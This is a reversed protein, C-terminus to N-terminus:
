VPAHFGYVEKRAADREQAIAAKLVSIEATLAANSARLEAEAKSEAENLFLQEVAARNVSWAYWWTRELNQVDRELAAVCERRWLFGVLAKDDAELERCCDDLEQM